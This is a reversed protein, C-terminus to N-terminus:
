TITKALSDGFELLADIYNRHNSLRPVKNQGGLKNRSQLWRHFTGVPVITLKLPMLALDYSRKADYDSNLTRLNNDLLQGFANIDEPKKNFEVIWEHGGKMATTLYIPGVTYNDISSGTAQCTMALAKDTNDVM